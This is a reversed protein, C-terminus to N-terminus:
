VRPTLNRSMLVRALVGLEIDGQKPAIDFQANYFENMISGSKIETSKMDVFVIFFSINASIIKASITNICFSIYFTL